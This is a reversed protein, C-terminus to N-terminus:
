LMSSLFRKTAPNEPNEFLRDPPAQEVVVGDEMYAARDCVRRAFTMEHSVVLMTMGREALNIMVDLVEGVLEPDLASTPEDFLMLTPEMCLARAIAVRQQQGGSLESPYADGKHVLGVQDLIHRGREIAQRRPERKVYIPGEIVNGLVTQHTFLNFDQFVMGIRSRQRAVDREGLERLVGNQRQYGLLEGEVLIEGGDIRELHNICRLFTSKGSGSRGLLCVVEGRAISLDVGKLIEDDNYRKYVQRAEVVPVKSM